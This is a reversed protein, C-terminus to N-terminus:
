RGLPTPGARRSAGYLASGTALVVGSLVVLPLAQLTSMFRVFPDYLYLVAAIGSLCAAVQLGRAAVALVLAPLVFAVFVVTALFAATGGLGPAFPIADRLGLVVLYLWFGAEVAAATLVAPRMM